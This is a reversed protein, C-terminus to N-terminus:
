QVRRLLRSARVRSLRAKRTAAEIMARECACVEIASQASASLQRMEILVGIRLKGDITAVHAVTTEGFTEVCRGSPLDLYLHLHTGPGLTTGCVLLTTPGIIHARAFALTRVRLDTEDLDFVHYGLTVTLPPSYTRGQPHMVQFAEPPDFRVGGM